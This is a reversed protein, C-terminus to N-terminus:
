QNLEELKARIVDLSFNRDTEIKFGEIVETMTEPSWYIKLKKRARTIATYFIGHTIKESNNEPIIVKVSEYQLGQSKHISVAYALQFPVVSNMRSNEYEEESGKLNEEFVSFRVRTFGEFTDIYEVEGKCRSATIEREIDVTFTIRGNVAEIDFIKGKLNNYFVTFRKTENFIIPDGVKYTWEKWRYAPNKNNAQFYININNLGFKGDYNLCLVVEDDSYKTLINKGIKESFPGDLSLMETVCLGRNRVEKWLNKITGIDTRWTNLLEVKASDKIIEKAYLFWNGFDIPELQYIDGALVLLTDPSIKKFFETMTHNDITSCEDVFIVEYDPLNIKKTFSDLSIFDYKTGPNDICRSLNQLATHTKTLFLKTSDAMLNSIYNILTTKGTGAAGYVLFVHSDVFVNELAKKKMKDQFLGANRKVFSFNIIKQGKNGERSLELIKQLIYLTEQEFADIYIRGDEHVLEYGQDREWNDLEDNYKGIIEDTKGERFLNDNFYIEGSDGISKKITLYPRMENIKGYGVVRIVDKAVTYKNTKSGALNSIYPNKEFPYCKSKLVVFNSNLFKDNNGPLVCEIIEEKMRLLLYRVTNKGMVTSEKSFNKKLKFLVKEFHTTNASLYISDLIDNFKVEEFDIFDVFNLGTQTLFNMLLKYENHRSNLNVDLKIIKSLQNLCKPEVSVQWDTVVKIKTEVDWLYIPVEEYAIQISYDTSINATTYVTLRNYKTAYLGALQLTIEYYRQKGIYFPTKKQIYYRSQRLYNPKFKYNNIAKAVLDYYEKDVEDITLPFKELNELIEYGYKKLDARIQWLFNYYKLMLRESQGEDPVRNAIYRIMRLFSGLYKTNVNLLSYEYALRINASNNGNKLVNLLLASICQEYLRGLIRKSVNDRTDNYFTFRDLSETIEEDCKKIIKEIDDLNYERGELNNIFTHNEVINQLVKCFRNVSEDTNKIEDDTNFTITTSDNNFDISNLYSNSMYKWFIRENGRLQPNLIVFLIGPDSTTCDFIYAPFALSKLSYKVIGDKETYDTTGKIQVFFNQEPCRSSEPDPVFEFFGDTNPWKDDCSFNTNIKGDSRLFTELIAIAARDANSHTSHTRKHKELLEKTVM